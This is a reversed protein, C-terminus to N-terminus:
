AAIRGLCVLNNRILNQLENRLMNINDNRKYSLNNDPKTYFAKVKLVKALRLIFVEFSDTSGEFEEIKNMKRQIPRLTKVLSEAEQLNVAGESNGLRATLEFAYPKDNTRDMQCTIQLGKYKHMDNYNNDYFGISDNWEKTEDKVFIVELTIHAYDCHMRCDNSIRFAVTEKGKQLKTYIDM